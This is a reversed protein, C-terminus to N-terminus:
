LAIASRRIERRVKDKQKGMIEESLRKVRKAIM